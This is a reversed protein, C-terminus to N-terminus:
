EIIVLPEGFEVPMGNSVFIRTIRGARHASITNFVKMAEILLITDGVSVMDGVRVFPPADPEPRTYVVGVMPSTLLGPHSLRAADDNGGAAPTDDGGRGEVPALAAPTAVTVTRAVRVRLEGAAVEIESLGNEDLVQALQRVLDINIENGGSSQTM